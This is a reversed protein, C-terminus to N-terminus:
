TQTEDRHRHICTSVSSVMQAEGWYLRLPGLSTLVCALHSAHELAEVVDGGVGAHICLAEAAAIPADVAVRAVPGALREVAGGVCAGVLVDVGNSGDHPGVKSRSGGHASLSNHGATPSCHTTTQESHTRDM